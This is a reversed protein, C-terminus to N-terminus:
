LLKSVAGQVRLIFSNWAQGKERAWSAATQELEGEEAAKEIRKVQETGVVFESAFRGAESATQRGYKLFNDGNPEAGAKFMKYGVAGTGAVASLAVLRSLM